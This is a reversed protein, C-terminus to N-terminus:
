NGDNGGTASAGFYELMRKAALVDAELEAYDQWMAETIEARDKIEWMGELSWKVVQRLRVICVSDYLDLLADGKQSMEEFIDAWMKNAWNNKIQPNESNVSAGEYKLLKAELEQIRGAAELYLSGEPKDEDCTFVREWALLREVLTDSM